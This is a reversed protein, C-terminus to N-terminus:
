RVTRNENTKAEGRHMVYRKLAEEKFKDLLDAFDKWAQAIDPMAEDGHEISMTRIQAVVSGWAKLIHGRANTLDIKM